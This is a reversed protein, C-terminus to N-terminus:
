VNSPFRVCTEAGVVSANRRSPPPHFTKSMWVIGSGGSSVYCPDIVRFRTIGDADVHQLRKQVGEVLMVEVFDRGEESVMRDEVKRSPRM